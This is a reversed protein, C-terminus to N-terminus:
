CHYEAAHNNNEDLGQQEIDYTTNLEKLEIENSRVANQKQLIENTTISSTSDQTNRYQKYLFGSILAAGLIGLSTSLVIHFTHASINSSVWLLISTALSTAYALAIITWLLIVYMYQKNINANQTEIQEQALLSELYAAKGQINFKSYVSESLLRQCGSAKIQDVLAQDLDRKILSNISDILSSTDTNNLYIECINDISKECSRDIQEQKTIYEDIFKLLQNKKCAAFKLTNVSDKIKQPDINFDNRRLHQEIPEPHTYIGSQAEDMLIQYLTESRSLSKQIVDALQDIKECLSSLQSSLRQAVLPSKKLEEHCIRLDQLKYQLRSFFFHKLTNYETNFNKTMDIRDIHQIHSLDEKVAHNHKIINIIMSQLTESADDHIKEQVSFDGIARMHEHIQSATESETDYQIPELTNQALDILGLSREIDASIPHMSLEEM